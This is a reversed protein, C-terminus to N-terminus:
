DSNCTSMHAHIHPVIFVCAQINKNIKSIYMYVKYYTFFFDLGKESRKRSLLSVFIIEVEYVSFLVHIYLIGCCGFRFEFITAGFKFDAGRDRDVDALM